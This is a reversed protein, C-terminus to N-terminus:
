TKTLRIRDKDSPVGDRITNWQTNCFVEYERFACPIGQAQILDPNDMLQFHLHPATSNGSHGVRGLLQGHTVTQGATVVISGTQMHALLSFAGNDCKMIIHNGVLPRLGSKYPNFTFANKIVVFLDSFLNVIQREKVGDEVKIVKGDCPSYIPEGWGYCKTLPVGFILYRLPSSNYFQMGKKEWDLRIFDYAYTQGLQDTGHSPIKKAPTNPAQWEGRLPFDVIILNQM